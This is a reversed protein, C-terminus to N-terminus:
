WGGGPAVIAAKEAAAPRPTRTMAQAPVGRRKAVLERSGHGFIALRDHFSGEVQCGDGIEHDELDISVIQVHAPIDVLDAHPIACRTVKVDGLDNGVLAPQRGAVVRQHAAIQRGFVADFGGIWGARTLDRRTAQHIGRDRRQRGRRCREVGRQITWSRDIFNAGVPASDVTARIGCQPGRRRTEAGAGIDRGLRETVGGGSQLWSRGIIIGERGAIGM